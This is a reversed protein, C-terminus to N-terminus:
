AFAASKDRVFLVTVVYLRIVFFDSKLGLVRALGGLGLTVELLTKTDEFVDCLGRRFSTVRGGFLGLRGVFLRFVSHPLALLRSFRPSSRTLISSNVGSILM